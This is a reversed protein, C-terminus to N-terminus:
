NGYVCTKSLNLKKIQFFFAPFLLFEHVYVIYM